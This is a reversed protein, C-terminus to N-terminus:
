CSNLDQFKRKSLNRINEFYSPIDAVTLLDYIEFAIQIRLREKYDNIDINLLDKIRRLRYSLTNGHIHLYNKTYTWNGNSQVYIKLTNLLDKSNDQNELLSGLTNLMFQSLTEKTNNLLLMELQLDEFFIYSNFNHEQSDAIKIIQLTNLYATKFDDIGNILGSVGAKFAIKYKNNISVYHKSCIDIIKDLFSRIKEKINEVEEAIIVINNNGKILTISNQLTKSVEKNIIEYFYKIYRNLELNVKQQNSLNEEAKIEIIIIQHKKNLRFKYNEACKILYEKNENHILNDLFDGKMSQEISSLESIKILELALINLGKEIIIRDIETYSDNDSAIGLWGLVEKNVIIPYFYFHLNVNYDFYSSYRNKSLYSIFNSKESIITEIDTLYNFEYFNINYFIDILFVDHHLLSSVEFLIDKINSGNLVMETFKIHLDASFKYKNREKELLRSYKELAENNQLEKKYNEANIIAITAQVSIAELISVDDETIQANNNLNDIVIAGICNEKYMLPCCISGYIKTNEITNKLSKALNAMNETSMTMLAERVEDENKYFGAKQNLFARGTISEGPKIKIDTISNGLAVYSRVELLNNNENYIFIIGTDGGKILDLSKRLLLDLIEDANKSSNLIKSAELVAELKSIRKETDSM